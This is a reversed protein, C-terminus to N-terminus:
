YFFLNIHKSTKGFVLIPVKLLFVSVLNKENWDERVYIFVAIVTFIHKLNWHFQRLQVSLALQGLPLLVKQNTTSWKSSNWCNCMTFNHIRGMGPILKLTPNCQFSEPVSLSIRIILKLYILIHTCIICFVMGVRFTELM